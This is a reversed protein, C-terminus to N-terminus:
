PRNGPRLCYMVALSYPEPLAVSVLPLLTGSVVLPLLEPSLM